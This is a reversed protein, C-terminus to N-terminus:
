LAVEVAASLREEKKSKASAQFDDELAMAEELKRKGHIREGMFQVECLSPKIGDINASMEYVPVTQYFAGFHTGINAKVTRIFGQYDQEPLKM